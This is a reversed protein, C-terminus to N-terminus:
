FNNEFMHENFKGNGLTNKALELLHKNHSFFIIQTTKALEGLVAFIKDARNDDSTILLDDAIIPMPTSGDLIRQKIYAIRLALYLQDRTGDSMSENVSSIKTGNARKALLQQKDNKDYDISLNIFSGETLTSFIKSSEELIPTKNKEHSKDIVRKLLLSMAKLRVFKEATDTMGTLAEQKDFEYKAADASGSVADLALKAERKDGALRQLGENLDTIEGELQEIDAKLQSNDAAASENEQLKELDNGAIQTIQNKNGVLQKELNQKEDSNRIAEYLADDDESGALKKLPKLTEQNTQKTTEYQGCLKKNSSIDNNAKAVTQNNAENEKLVNALQSVVEDPATFKGELSLALHLKEAQNTFNEVEDGMDKIRDNFGSCKEEIQMMKEISDCICDIDDTQSTDSLGMERLTDCWKDNLKERQTQASQLDSQANEIKKALATQEGEDTMQQKIKKDTFDIIYELSELALNELGLKVLPECLKSKANDINSTMAEIDMDLAQKQQCDALIAQSKDLWEEMEVPTKPTIGVAQWQECWQKDFANKKTTLTTQQEEYQSLTQKLDVIDDQYNDAKVVKDANDFRKDSLTDTKKISNEYTSKQGDNIISKQVCIEAWLDDRDKRATVIEGTSIVDTNIKLKQLKSDKNSISDQTDRIDDSLKDNNKHWKELKAKFSLITEKLPLKLQSLAKIDGQWLTLSQTNETIKIHLKESEQQKEQQEKTKYDRANDLYIGLKEWIKEDSTKNFNEKSNIIDQSNSVSKENDNIDRALRKLATLKPKSPLNEATVLNTEQALQALEGELQEVDGALKESDRIADQYSKKGEVLTNIEQKKALANKNIKTNKVIGEDTLIEGELRQINAHAKNIKQEAKRAIDESNEAFNKVDKLEKLKLELDNKQRLLPRINCIQELKSQEARKTKLKEQCEKLSENASRLDNNITKWKNASVSNERVKKENDKFKKEFEHYKQSRSGQKWLEDAEKDLDKRKRSLGELGTQAVFLIDGLSGQSNLLEQGGLQLRKHDLGYLREYTGRSINDLQTSLQNEYVSNGNSDLLTNKRGARRIFTISKGDNDEIDATIRLDENSNFKYLSRGPVGFMFDLLASLTTTKGAENNGYIFHFDLEKKAFSIKHDQFHGYNQLNIQNFRM